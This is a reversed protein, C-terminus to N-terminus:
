LRDDPQQPHHRTPHNDPLWLTYEPLQLLPFLMIENYMFVYRLNRQMVFIKYFFLFEQSMNLPAGWVIKLFAFLSISSFFIKCHYKFVTVIQEDPSVVTITATGGSHPKAQVVGYKDASQTVTDSIQSVIQQAYTKSCLCLFHPLTKVTFWM